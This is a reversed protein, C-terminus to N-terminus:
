RHGELYDSLILSAAVMDVDGKTYSRKGAALRQEALVSTLSEDQFVIEVDLQQLQAAFSEVFATQATPEGSQNRPYGIVITSAGTLAVLRMIAEVESGDVEVVDYPVAIGISADAQAVGIRKEGVDLAILIRKSTM